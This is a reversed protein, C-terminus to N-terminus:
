NDELEIKQVSAPFDQGYAMLIKKLGIKAGSERKYLMPKRYYTRLRFESGNAELLTWCGSMSNWSKSLVRIAVKNRLPNTPRGDVVVYYTAM